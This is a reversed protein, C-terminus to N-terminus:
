RSIKRRFNKINKQVTVRDEEEFFYLVNKEESFYELARIYYDISCIPHYNKKYKYDGLRFHISIDFNSFNPYKKITDERLELIGIERMIKDKNHHFYKWSQFYGNFTVDTAFFPIPSYHHFQENYTCGSINSININKFITNSHKRKDPVLFFKAIKENDM